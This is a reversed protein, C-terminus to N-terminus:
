RTRLHTQEETESTLEIKEEITQENAKRYTRKDMQTVPVDNM